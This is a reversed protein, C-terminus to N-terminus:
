KLNRNLCYRCEKCDELVACPVCDKSGCIKKRRKVGAKRSTKLGAQLASTGGYVFPDVWDHCSSPSAPNSADPVLTLNEAQSEVIHSDTDTQSETPVLPPAEAPSQSSQRQKSLTIKPNEIKKKEWLSFNEMTIAGSSFMNSLTKSFVVNSKKSPKIKKKSNGSSKTHRKIDSVMQQPKLNSDSPNPHSTGDTPKPTNDCSESPLTFCPESTENPKLPTKFVSNTSCIGPNLGFSYSYLDTTIAIKVEHFTRLHREVGDRSQFQTACMSCKYALGKSTSFPVEPRSKPTVEAPTLQKSEPESSKEKPVKVRREGIFSSFHDPGIPNLIQHTRALHKKVGIETTYKKVCQNCKFNLAQIVKFEFNTETSISDVKESKVTSINLEM